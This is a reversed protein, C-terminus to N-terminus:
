VSQVSVRRMNHVYSIFADRPVVTVSLCVFAHIYIYFNRARHAACRSRTIYLLCSKM